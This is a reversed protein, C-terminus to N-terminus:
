YWFIQKSLCLHGSSFIKVSFKNWSGLCGFRPSGWMNGTTLLFGLVLFTRIKQIERKGRGNLWALRALGDNRVLPANDDLDWLLLLGLIRSPRFGPAQTRPTRWSSGHTSVPLFSLCELCRWVQFYNEATQSGLWIDFYIRWRYLVYVCYM